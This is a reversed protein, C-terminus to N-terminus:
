NSILRDNTQHSGQTRKHPPDAMFSHSADDDRGERAGAAATGDRKNAGGVSSKAHAAERWLCM